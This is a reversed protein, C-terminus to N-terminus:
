CPTADGGAIPHTPIGARGDLSRQLVYGGALAAARAPLASGSSQRHRDPSAFLVSSDPHTTPVLAALGIHDGLGMAALVMISASTAGGGIGAVGFSSIMIVLLLTIVDLAGVSVGLANWIMVVLM